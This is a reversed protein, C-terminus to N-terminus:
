VRHTHPAEGRSYWQSSFLEAAPVSDLPSILAFVLATNIILTLLSTLHLNFSITLSTFSLHLLPFHFSLVLLCLCM